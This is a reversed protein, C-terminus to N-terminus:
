KQVLADLDLDMNYMRAVSNPLRLRLAEIWALAIGVLRGLEGGGGGGGRGEGM